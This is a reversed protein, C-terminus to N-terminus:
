TIQKGPLIPHGESECIVVQKLRRDLAKLYTSGVNETGARCIELVRIFSVFKSSALNKEIRM